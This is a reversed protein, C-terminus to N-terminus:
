KCFSNKVTETTYIVIDALKTQTTKKKFYVNHLLFTKELKTKIEPGCYIFGITIVAVTFNVFKIECILYARFCSAYNSTTTNGYLFHVKLMKSQTKPYKSFVKKSTSLWWIEMRLKEMCSDHPVFAHSANWNWSFWKKAFNCLHFFYEFSYM